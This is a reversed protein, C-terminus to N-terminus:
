RSLRTRWTPRPAALGAVLAGRRGLCRDCAGCRAPAGSEGYYRLLFRRRCGTEYAYAQVSVLRRLERDRQADVAEWDVSPAAGSDCLLQIGIRDPWPRWDVFGARDLEALLSGAKEASAAVRTLANRRLELGAYLREEGITRWLARLLARAEGEPLEGRIREPTAILRLWPPGAVRGVRRLVGSRELVRLAADAHQPGRVGAARRALDDPALAALGDDGAVEALVAYVREVIERAPHSQEILFEHTFRDAYCHILVCLAANGDRGARGAEQYYGELTGPMDYHAVLRVNPKDIGMGFANTAVVVRMEEAMFAEQLRKRESGMIGAHYAVASIGSRNLLDAVGDVSKRTSAYVISMGDHKVGRLLALLARDKDARTGAAVVHWALNPRDFGRAIVLPDRMRLQRVVDARVEPTATATLAIVPCNLEDRLAGLRLYSPRFDHGWQSICHAEDVAVRAVRLKPLEARFRPSDFREPAVYLLKVEGSAVRALRADAEDSSITSNVLTAQIGARLLADVQDKMLSILPSVVITPGPLLQSPVQYCLSKGGGTPMLVLADRGALAARVADPQGGRFDPYGFHRHLVARADDFNPAPDPPAATAQM